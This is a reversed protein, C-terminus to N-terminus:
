APRQGAQPRPPRHRPRAAHGVGDALPRSWRPPTPPRRGPRRRGPAVRGPDAGPLLGVRPLLGAGAEGAEYVPVINPPGAPPRGPRATSGSACGRRVGAREARPVKLAVDRGLRPDVPWTSSAWAAAAWSAASRSAARHERVPLGAAPRALLRRVLLLSWRGLETRGLGDRDVPALKAPASPRTAPPWCTPTPGRGRATRGPDHSAEDCRRSSDNSRGRGSSAPPKPTRGM